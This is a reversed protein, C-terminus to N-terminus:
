RNAESLIGMLTVGTSTPPDDRVTNRTALVVGTAAGAIVAGGIITWFWWQEYIPTARAPRVPQNVVVVREVPAAAPAVVTPAAAMEVRLDRTGSPALEVREEFPVYGPAEARIVRAGPDVVVEGAENPQVRRGDVSVVAAAPTLALFHVRAVDHAIEQLMQRVPDDHQTHQQPTALEMFQQLRVRAELLRGLNKLSIGLNLAASPSARARMSADFADAAQQWQSQAMAAVGIDFQARAV